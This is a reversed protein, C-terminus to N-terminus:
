LVASELFGQLLKEAESNARPDQEYILDCTLRLISISPMEAVVRLVVNAQSLPIEKLDYILETKRLKNTPIYAHLLDGFVHTKPSSTGTKTLYNEHNLKQLAKASASYTKIIENSRVTHKEAWQLKEQSLTKLREKARRRQNPTLQQSDGGALLAINDFSTQTLRRGNQSHHNQPQDKIIWQNGLKKAHLKGEAALQRIRAPSLNTAQAFESVSFM